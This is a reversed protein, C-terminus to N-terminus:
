RSPVALVQDSGLPGERERGYLPPSINNTPPTKRQRNYRCNTTFNSRRCPTTYVVNDVGEDLLLTSLVLSVVLLELVKVCVGM